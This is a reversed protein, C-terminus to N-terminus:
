LRRVIRRPGTTPTPTAVLRGGAGPARNRRDSKARREATGGVGAVPDLGRGRVRDQIDRLRLQPAGVLAGLSQRLAQLPSMGRPYLEQRSSLAARRSASAALRLLRSPAIAAAPATDATLAMIDNSYQGASVNEIITLLHELEQSDTDM